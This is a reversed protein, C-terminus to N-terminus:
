TTGLQRNIFTTMRHYGLIGNYLRHLEKIKAMLKTNKTEFDTKQRNLWKYYGSRSGKLLQCLAQIPM